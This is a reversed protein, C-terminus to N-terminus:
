RKIIRTEELISRYKKINSNIITHYLIDVMFLMSFRSTTSFVRSISETAVVNLKYDIFDDNNAEQNGILVTKSKYDKATKLNQLVQKNTSSYTLAISLTNEDSNCATFHQTHIDQYATANIGIRVLKLQLDQAVINTEGLAFINVMDANKILSVVKDLIKTDLTSKTMEFSALVDTYHKSIPEEVDETHDIKNAEVLNFILQQYNVYGLYTSFRSITSVSVNVEDSIKKVKLTAFDDEYQLLFRAIACFSENDDTSVIKLREIIKQDEYFNM